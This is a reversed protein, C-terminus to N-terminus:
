QTRWKAPLGWGHPGYSHRIWEHAFPHNFRGPNEYWGEPYIADLDGDGDIDSLNGFEPKINIDDLAYIQWPWPQDTDWVHLRDGNPYCEEYHCEDYEDRACVDVRTLKEMEPMFDIWARYSVLAIWLATVIMHLINM